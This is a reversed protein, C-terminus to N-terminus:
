ENIMFKRSEIGNANEITLWYIGPSLNSVNIEVKNPAFRQPQYSGFQLRQGLANYISIDYENFEPFTFEATIMANAPNPFINNIMLPGEKGGCFNQLLEMSKKLNLRGGSFTRGSLDDLPDVGDLIFGKVALAMGAPDQYVSQIFDQCDASYLLAVAGTVQPTAFSTGQTESFNNNVTSTFIEEGPAGIDVSPLGYAASRVKKEGEVSNLPNSTSTVSILYPSACTSPVDGSEEVDLDINAVAGISLIGHTGLSDMAADWVPVVECFLRDIGFSSNFAVVFAGQQGATQNYMKRQDLAYYYSEIIKDVPLGQPGRYSLLMNQVNWNVGSGQFGNNGRAGMVGVVQTGHDDSEHVGSNDKLNAGNIDDFYGNGDDDVLNGPIEAKNRWLNGTFDSHAAEYGADFVAIVITDGGATVGGTTIDWVEPAKIRDLHWQQGFDPDDPETDRLQAYYNPQWLEIEPKENLNELFSAEEAKYGLVFIGRKQSAVRKVVPYAEAFREEAQQMFADISYGAKLQIIIEGPILGSQGNLIAAGWIVLFLSALIQKLEM